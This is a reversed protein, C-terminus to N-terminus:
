DNRKQREIRDRTGTMAEKLFGLRKEDASSMKYENQYLALAATFISCIFEIGNTRATEGTSSIDCVAFCNAFLQWLGEIKGGYRGMDVVMKSKVFFPQEKLYEKLITPYATVVKGSVADDLRVCGNPGSGFQERGIPTSGIAVTPTPAGELLPVKWLLESEQKSTKMGEVLIDTGTFGAVAASRGNNVLDSVDKARCIVADIDFKKFKIGYQRNPPEECAGTKVLLNMLSPYWEGGPLLITTRSKEKSM